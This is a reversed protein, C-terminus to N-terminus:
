FPLPLVAVARLCHQWIQITSSAETVTLPQGYNDKNYKTTTVRVDMM